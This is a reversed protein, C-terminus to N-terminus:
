CFVLAAGTALSAECGRILRLCGFAEVGYRKWSTDSHDRQDAASWMEDSEHDLDTPIKMIAALQRCEELLKTVSGVMAGAIKMQEPPFLVSSFDQPLYYGEADSHLMLHQFQLEAQKRRLLRTLFGHSGTVLAYYKAVIPDNSADGNIPEPIPRGLALHAAIRRLHHLGSYGWMQCSFLREEPLDEPERHPELGADVLFRNLREFEERFHQYGEADHRKLDAVIGVELDLGM